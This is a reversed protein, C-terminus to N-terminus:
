EYQGEYITHPFTVVTEFLSVDTANQAVGFWKETLQDIRLWILERNRGARGNCEKNM